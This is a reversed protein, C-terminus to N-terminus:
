ASEYDKADNAGAGRQESLAKETQQRGWEDMGLRHNLGQTDGTRNEMTLRNRSRSKKPSRTKTKM